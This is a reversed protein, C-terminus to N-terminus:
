VRVRHLLQAGRTGRSSWNPAGIARSVALGMGMLLLGLLVLGLFVALGIWFPALVWVWPWAIVGTLKLIIFTVGLLTALGVTPQNVTATKTTM